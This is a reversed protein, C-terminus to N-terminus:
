AYGEVRRRRARRMAVVAGGTLMVAALAVVAMSGARRSGGAARGDLAAADPQAAIGGVSSPAALPRSFIAQWEAYAPKPTFDSATLGQSAFNLLAAQRDPPLGWSPDALNLDAFILTIWLRARVGDLLISLRDIYAAQDAPSGPGWASGASSWGGEVQLLPLSSAQAFRQYYNDPMDAPHAFGFSPYSSLGLADINFGAILAFQDIASPPFPAHQWADEVQFSVFVKAGPDLAHIDPTLTNVMSVITSYLTTSGHAALTNIESALGVYEPHFRQAVARVWAEHMALISPELLSHGAAVLTPPEKTRDLGDLPDVLWVIKMGLSRLYDIFPQENDLEASISGGALLTPWPAERQILAYESVPAMAQATALISPTTTVPPTPAFGMAYSRTRTVIPAAHSAPTTGTVAAGAAASVALLLPIAAKLTAHLM